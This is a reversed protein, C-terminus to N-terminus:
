VYCDILHVHTTNIMRVDIQIEYTNPTEKVDLLLGEYPALSRRQSQLLGMPSTLSQYFLSLLCSISSPIEMFFYTHPVYWPNLVVSGNVNLNMWQALLSLLVFPPPQSTSCLYVLSYSHKNENIVQNTVSQVPALALESIAMTLPPSYQKRWPSYVGM